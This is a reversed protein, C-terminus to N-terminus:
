GAEVAEVLRYLTRQVEEVAPVDALVVQGREGGSEVILTGSGFLRELLTHQFSVDMVRTLPVDRGQRSLVGTRVVIRRTTVVYNTTRWRLWPRLSTGALALLAAALVAWRLYGQYRGAPIEAAGFSAAGCVLPVALIPWILRRWHPHTELAVSEDPALLRKPYAM